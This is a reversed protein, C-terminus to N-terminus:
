EPRQEAILSNPDNLHGLVCGQAVKAPPMDLLDGIQECHARADRTLLFGEVM